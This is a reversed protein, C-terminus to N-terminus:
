QKFKEVKTKIHPMEQMWRAVELTHQGNGMYSKGKSVEEFSEPKAMLGISMVCLTVKKDPDLM